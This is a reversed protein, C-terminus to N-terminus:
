HSLFCLVNRVEKQVLVAHLSLALASRRHSIAHRTSSSLTILVCRSRPPTRLAHWGPECRWDCRLSFSVVPPPATSSSIPIKRSRNLRGLSRRRLFRRPRPRRLSSAIALHLLRHPQTPLLVLSPPALQRRLVLPSQEVLLRLAHIKPETTHSPHSISQCRLLLLKISM